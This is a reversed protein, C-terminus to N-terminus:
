HPLRHAFNADWRLFSRLRALLDHEIGLLEGEGIMLDEGFAPMQDRCGSL